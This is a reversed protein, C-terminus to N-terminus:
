GLIELLKRKPFAYDRPTLGENDTRSADGGAALLDQLMKVNGRSVAQHVATWGREDPVNPSAGKALLM